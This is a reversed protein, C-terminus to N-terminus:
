YPDRNSQVHKYYGDKQYCMIIQKIVKHRVIDDNTLTIFGIEKVNEYGDITIKAMNIISKIIREAIKSIPEDSSM